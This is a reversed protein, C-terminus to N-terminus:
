WGCGGSGRRDREGWRLKRRVACLNVEGVPHKRDGGVVGAEVLNEALDGGVRAHLDGSADGVFADKAFVARSRYIM